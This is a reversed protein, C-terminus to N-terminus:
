ALAEKFPIDKLGCVKKGHGKPISDDNFIEYLTWSTTLLM